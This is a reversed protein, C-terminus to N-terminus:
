KLCVYLLLILSVLTIWATYLARRRQNYSQAINQYHAIWQTQHARATPNPHHVAIYAANGISADNIESIDPIPNQERLELDGLAKYCCVTVADAYKAMEQISELGLVDNLPISPFVACGMLPHHNIVYRFTLQPDAPDVRGKPLADLWSQHDFPQMPSDSLSLFFALLISALM